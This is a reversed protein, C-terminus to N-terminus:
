GDVLTRIHGVLEKVGIPKVLVGRAGHKISERTVAPSRQDSIVIFPIKSRRMQDCREWIGHDFGSLDILALAIVEEGKIVEDLEAMSAAGRTTYGEGQLQQTLLELNSSNSDVVLVAAKQTM